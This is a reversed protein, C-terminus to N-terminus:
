SVLRKVYEGYEERMPLELDRTVRRRTAKVTEGTMPNIAEREYSEWVLGSGRKRWSPVDNFNIGQSFLLENKAAVSMGKLAATASSVDQGQKRLM